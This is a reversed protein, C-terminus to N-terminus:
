LGLYIEEMGEQEERVRNPWSGAFDAELVQLLKM